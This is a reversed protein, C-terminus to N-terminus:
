NVQYRDMVGRMADEVRKWDKLLVRPYSVSFAIRKESDVFHHSCMAARGSGDPTVRDGSIVLGDQRLRQSSCAIFTVLAGDTSRVIYWDKEGDPNRLLEHGYMAEYEAAFPPMRAEDIVYPALGFVEPQRGRLELRARPDRSRLSGAETTWDTTVMRDLVSEIPIRDIPVVTASVQRYQEDVTRMPYNGPPAADLTPWFLTLELGIDPSPGVQDNYYNAPILFRNPGLRAEVPANTYARGGVVKKIIQEESMGAERGEGRENSTRACAGVSVAVGLALALAVCRRYPMDSM